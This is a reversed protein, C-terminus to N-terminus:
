ANEAEEARAERWPAIWQLLLLGPLALVTCLGFFAVWGLEEVMWGTSANAVSRPIATLATFLAFQTAAFTKSSERAIFATLAATGLGVGLYEFAIVVALLWLEPGVAALVAFGPISIMQIVGFIWLARNIGLKLMWLGGLLGGLISPWLAANKAVWGIQTKTFGLDLYFPMALATAMNDGLKYAVMFVLILSLDRWGRRAVYEQFPELVTAKLGRHAPAVRPPEAISLSLAVGVLMFVATVWFVWVWPMQDALILSLSGPVLGAIRYAQVHVANGLGLEEDPLLERRYADIAIDQTASFLAIAVALVVVSQMNQLPDVYGLGAICAILLLQTLLMWGRRLGLPLVWRDLMPAWVFKWAYPLGVLSFLGIDVLSVDSSRLWAPILQILIYLPLGSAFGTFVCILTRRNLAARANM